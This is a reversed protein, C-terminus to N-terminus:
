RASAQGAPPVRVLALCCLGVLLQASQALIATRPGLADALVGYVSSGLVSLKVTIGYLGFYAGARDPPALLLVLKRGATWTGALGIAGLPVMTLLYATPSNGGFGAGTALAVLLMMASARLIGLPSADARLGLVVGGLLALVNLLLGALTGYADLTMTTGLVPVEKIGGAGFVSVTYDYFFLIATNIVDVLFFNGLLFWLMAPQRPLSRMTDLVARFPPDAPRAAPARRDRVLVMCPLAFLLFLLAAHLFRVQEGAAGIPLLVLVLITGLYGVGTGIGSVLGQRAPVAVSPLLANYALLATNYGVNAVLLATLLALPTDVWAWAAMSGICALTTVSLITRTRLTADCVAGLWPVVLAALVMSATQMAGLGSRGNEEAFWPTFLYTLSAAYVTNGLDYLVWATARAAGHTPQGAPETASAAM